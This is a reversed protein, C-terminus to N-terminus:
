EFEWIKPPPVWSIVSFMDPRLTSRVPPGPWVALSFKTDLSYKRSISFPAAPEVTSCDPLSNRTVARSLLLEVAPVPSRCIDSDRDASSYVSVPRRYLLPAGPVVPM